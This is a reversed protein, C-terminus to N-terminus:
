GEVLCFKAISTLLHVMPQDNKWEGFYKLKYKGEKLAFFSGIGERLDRVWEGEYKEGNKYVM